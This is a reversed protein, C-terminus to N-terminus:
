NEVTTVNLTQNTLFLDAEEGDEEEAETPAGGVMEEEKNCAM